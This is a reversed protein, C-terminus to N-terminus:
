PQRLLDGAMVHMIYILYQVDFFYEQTPKSALALGIGTRKIKNLSERRRGGEESMYVSSSYGVLKPRLCESLLQQGAEM